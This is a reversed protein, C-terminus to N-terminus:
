KTTKPATPPNMVFSWLTDGADDVRHRDAAGVHARPGRTVPPQGARGAPAKIVSERGHYKALYTLVTDFEELTVVAGRATQMSIITTEWQSRSRGEATVREAPHCKTCVRVFTERASIDGAAEQGPRGPEQGSTVSWPLAVLAFGALAGTRALRRGPKLM